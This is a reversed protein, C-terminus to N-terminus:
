EAGEEAKSVRAKLEAIEIQMDDMARQISEILSMLKQDTTLAPNKDYDIIM